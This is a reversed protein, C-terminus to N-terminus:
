EPVIDQRPEYSLPADDERVVKGRVGDGALILATSAIPAIDARDVGVPLRLHVEDLDMRLEVEIVEPPRDSRACRVIRRRLEDEPVLSLRADADRSIRHDAVTADNRPSTNVPAHEAHTASHVREALDLLANEELSHADAPVRLDSARDDVLVDLDRGARHDSEVPLCILLAEEHGFLSRHDDGLAGLEFSVGAGSACAVDRPRLCRTRRASTVPAATSEPETRAIRTPPASYAARRPPTACRSTAPANIRPRVDGAARTGTEPGSPGRAGARAM